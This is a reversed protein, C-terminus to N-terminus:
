QSWVQYSDYRNGLIESGSEEYWEMGDAYRGVGLPVKVPINLAPNQDKAVALTEQVLDGKAMLTFPIDLAKKQDKEKRSM